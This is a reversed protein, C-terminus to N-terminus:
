SSSGSNGPSTYHSLSEYSERGRYHKYDSRPVHPKPVFLDESRKPPGTKRRGETHRPHTLDRTKSRPSPTPSSGSTRHRRHGVGESPLPTPPPTRRTWPRVHTRLLLTRRLYVYHSVGPTKEWTYLSHGLGWTGNRNWKGDETVGRYRPTGSGRRM